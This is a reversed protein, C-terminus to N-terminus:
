AAPKSYCRSQNSRAIPCADTSIGASVLEFLAGVEVSHHKVQAKVATFEAIKRDVDAVRRDTPM